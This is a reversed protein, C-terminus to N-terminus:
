FPCEADQKPRAAETMGECWADHLEKAIESTLDLMEYNIETYGLQTAWAAVLNEAKKVFRCRPMEKPESM